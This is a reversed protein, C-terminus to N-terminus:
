SNEGQSILLIGVITYPWVLSFFITNKVHSFGRFGTEYFLLIAVGFAVALYPLCFLLVAFGLNM